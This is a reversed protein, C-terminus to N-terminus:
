NFGEAIAQLKFREGFSFTRSLRASMAFFDFGTGTNRGITDAIGCDSAAEGVCPRGSTQQITTVGSVINLPLASYYQLLGGLQFGHSIRQWTNAPHTMSSHVNANFVLRHRQDDDSRGWDQHPNFMNVPASFFFEGVDDMAKSFTYSLRFDGW